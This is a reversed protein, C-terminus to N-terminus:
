LIHGLFDSLSPYYVKGNKIRPELKMHCSQCLGILNARSHADIPNKFERFPRRHHVPLSKGVYKKCAACCGKQEKIVQERAILWHRSNRRHPSGGLWGPNNPGVLTRRHNDRCQKSCYRCNPRQKIRWRPIEFNQKCLICQYKAWQTTRVRNEIAYVKGACKNSCFNRNKKFECPRRNIEKGCIFCNTKM